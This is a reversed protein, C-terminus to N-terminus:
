RNHLPNPGTYVRRKEAGFVGDSSDGGKAADDGRIANGTNLRSSSSSPSSFRSRGHLRYSRGSGYLDYAASCPVVHQTCCLLLLLLLVLLLVSHLSGVSRTRAAKM